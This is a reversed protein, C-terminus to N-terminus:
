EIAGVEAVSYAGDDSKTVAYSRLTKFEGKSTAPTGEKRDDPWTFTYPYKGSGSTGRFTHVGGPKVPFDTGLLRLTVEARTKNVVEVKLGDGAPAGVGLRRPRGFVQVFYWTGSASKAAGIGIETLDGNLLNANHGPSAIWDEMIKKGPDDFGQNYGVNEAMRAYAYGAAKVREAPTKGDIVHGDKGDDGYKDLDAMRKAHASAVGRLTKEVALKGKDSKARHANVAELIQKEVDAPKPEALAASAFLVCVIIARM